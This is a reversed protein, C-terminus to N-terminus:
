RGYKAICAKQAPAGKKDLTWARFGQQKYVCYAAATSCSLNSAARTCYGVVSSGPIPNGKKDFGSACNLKGSVGAAQQCASNEFCKSNGKLIIQFPGYATSSNGWDYNKLATGCNSEPRALCAFTNAERETLSIGSKQAETKLQTPSCAGVGSARAGSTDVVTGTGTGAGTVIDWVGDTLPTPVKAKLCLDDGKSALIANWPGFESDENYLTKMVFDVVLWASLVVALGILSNLMVTRGKELNGPNTSNLIFLLGGYALALMVFIIGLSIGLNITNQLVQLVCGWGPAMGECKCVLPIIPGFFNM